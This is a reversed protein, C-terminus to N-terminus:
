RRRSNGWGPVPEQYPYRTGTGPVPDVHATEHIPPAIDHDGVIEGAPVGSAKALEAEIQIRAGQVQPVIALRLLGKGSGLRDKVQRSPDAAHLKEVSGVPGFKRSQLGIQDNVGVDEPPVVCPSATM